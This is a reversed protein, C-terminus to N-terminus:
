VSGVSNCLWYERAVSDPNPISAVCYVLDCDVKKALRVARSDCSRLARKASFVYGEEFTEVGTRKILGEEIQLELQRIYFPDAYVFLEPDAM